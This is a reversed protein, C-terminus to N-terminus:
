CFHFRFLNQFYGIFKKDIDRDLLKRIKFINGVFWGLLTISNQDVLWDLINVYMPVIKQSKIRIEHQNLFKIVYQTTLASMLSQKISGKVM